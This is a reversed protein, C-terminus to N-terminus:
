VTEFFRDEGFSRRRRGHERSQYVASELAAMDRWTSEWSKDSLFQDVRRMWESDAHCERMAVEGFEIFEEPTEAISVLKERGYPYVVDRIPTSIVPKGAALYEPTKTPSIFRTSENLAFPMMALDWGALYVPLESYEKKGLYHINSLQPLTAPDIKVVPGIMVLHWDPRLRAISELLELNMREDIVGFFGIRPHPIMKQDAPEESWTRAQAFHEFDISSPFPHINHHQQQKAEYLTQGGTFVLDAMRFLEAENQVLATPAGKFNSLEDMCDYIIAIPALHRAIPLMMSTYFWLTYNRLCEDEVLENVLGSLIRAQNEIGLNEPLHPVVVKVGGTSEKIHLRPVNTQGVIPEEVFFVRRYRAFRTMLHQPRQFVFDWRLHSFVLLDSREFPSVFASEMRSRLSIVNAGDVCSDKMEM